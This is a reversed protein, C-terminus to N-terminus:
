TKKYTVTTEKGGISTFSKQGAKGKSLTPEGLFFTYFFEFKIKIFDSQNTKIQFSLM